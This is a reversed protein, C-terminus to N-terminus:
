SLLGKSGGGVAKGLNVRGGAERGAARSTGDGYSRRGQNARLRVGSTKFEENVREMKVVVLDTGTTRMERVKAERAKKMDRLRSSIESAMGKQFGNTMSRRWGGDVHEATYRESKKFDALERKMAGDIVAYLYAFMETDAELGFVGYNSKKRAEDRVHNWGKSFWIKLDCFKALSICCDDMGGRNLQGTPIYRTLCKEERIQIDTMSLNYHDMLEGAKEAASIAEEKTCGNDVTKQLLAHIRKKVNALESMTGDRM